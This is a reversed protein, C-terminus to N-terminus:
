KKEETITKMLNLISDEGGAVGRVIKSLVIVIETAAVASIDWPDVNEEMGATTGCKQTRIVAVNRRHM